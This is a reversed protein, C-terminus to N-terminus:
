RQGPRAHAAQESFLVRQTTSDWKGGGGLGAQKKFEVLAQQSVEGWNGDPFFGKLFGLEVLRRQAQIADNRYSLNLSSPSQGPPMQPAQLRPPSPVEQRTPPPGPMSQGPPIQPPAQARPPSPVEQRTVPTQNERSSNLPAPASTKEQSNIKYSSPNVGSQNVMLGIAAFCACCIAIFKSAKQVPGTAAQENLESQRAALLTQNAVESFKRRQESCLNSTQQLSTVAVRIKGELESKRSAIKAKLASLDRPNLPENPNFVFRAALGQQWTTLSSVLTPGFGQIASIKRQDVDAATEIGFSRLVAKRASGIKPIKANAIAFRELYHTRQDERKKQELIQVQRQEENPLDSLSRILSDTLRKADVFQETGSQKEWADQAACWLAEAQSREQRLRNLEKPVLVNALIGFGLIFLGPLVAAGGFFISIAGVASAAGGIYARLNLNSILGAQPAAARLNTPAVIVTQLSPTPGPDRIGRLVAAIESINVYTPIFVGTSASIFAVFGPNNQEMRCWPCPKGQVHHHTSDAACEILEKELSDLLPVWQAATPRGTSGARGFASEFAQGIYLPFDTLLPAGPPPLMKAAAAQASYAFRYEGIARELPMDGSGQYRGSFPHRGMFLIQFLLVALGFNDHNPTREVRDFRAGQLEPPTYEPTGVQCLFKQNAAIIQFSDCDILTSTAKDSVLFGSHNVDGIVCTLAHVSAVARAINSAARVLFKYDAATFEIKRSAPSFLLHVPKGGGVRKMVFGLFAGTPSLLIDIPFTVFSNTKYWKAAAMASIKDRRSAAKDPWYLKLAVDSQEQIEYIAGEGGQGIQKALHFTRGLSTQVTAPFAGM